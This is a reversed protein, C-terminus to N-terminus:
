EIVPLPLAAFYKYYFILVNAFWTCLVTIKVGFKNLIGTRHVKKALEV